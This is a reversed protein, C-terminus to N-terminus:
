NAKPTLAPSGPLPPMSATTASQPLLAKDAAKRVAESSDTKAMKALREAVEPSRWSALAAAAGARVSDERDQSLQLLWLSPDIDTRDKLLPIVSARIEAKPHFIMSGLSIQEPTFGRIKLVTEASQRILPEGDYMRKLVKDEGMLLPRGAFSVLVQNRVEPSRPDDLYAVAPEAIANIPNLGLCVVATLRVKPERDGLKRQVPQCLGDKWELLANEETSMLTRAPMWSWLGGIQNLAAIRVDSGADELGMSFLDHAPKLTGVWNPPAPEISFRALVRGVVTLASARGYSGFRMFGSRMAEIAEIWEATEAETIPEPKLGNAVASRQYLVALAMGDGDRLSPLLASIPSAENFVSARSVAWRRGRSLWPAAVAGAVLVVGVAIVWSRRQASM